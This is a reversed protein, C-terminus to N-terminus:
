RSRVVGSRSKVARVGPITKALAEKQATALKNLAPGVPEVLHESTEYHAVVFELLAKKDIVEASWRTQGGVGKGMAIEPAPPVYPTEVPEALIAEAAAKDGEQEALIAEQLAREEAQQRAEEAIRRAEAEARARERADYGDCEAFILRRAEAIPERKSKEEATMDRHAKFLIAKPGAYLGEIFKDARALAVLAEQAVEHSPKDTVKIERARSVIPSVEREIAAADIMPYTLSAEPTM